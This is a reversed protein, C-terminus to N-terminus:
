IKITDQFQKMNTTNSYERKEKGVKPQIMQDRSAFGKILNDNKFNKYYFKHRM